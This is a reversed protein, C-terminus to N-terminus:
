SFLEKEDLYEDTPVSSTKKIDLFHLKGAAKINEL